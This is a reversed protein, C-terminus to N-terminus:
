IYYLDDEDMRIYRNITKYTAIFSILIGFLLVCGFTILIEQENLLGSYDADQMLYYLLWVLGGIAIFAAIIGSVVNSKIFPNRISSSKAGVLKMTRILFRKSYVMLRITNGILAFSIILLLAALGIIVIKVKQLNDNVAQMMEKQYVIEKINGSYKRIQTEIMLLNDTLAYESKLFVRIIAPLPNFGIFEGLPLGLDKEVQKAAEEKSIYVTSKTFSSADLFTKIRQIQGKNTDDDLVIDFSLNEKLRDSLNNAFLSLLIAVGVLFLVLSISIVVTIRANIFRAPKFKRKRKM